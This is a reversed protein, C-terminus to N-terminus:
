TSQPGRGSTSLGKPRLCRNNTGLLPRATQAAPPSVLNCPSLVQISNWRRSWEGGGGGGRALKSLGQCLPAPPPTTGWIRWAGQPSFSSLDGRGELSSLSSKTGNPGGRSQGSTAWSHGRGAEAACPPGWGWAKGRTPGAWRVLLPPLFARWCSPYVTLPRPARFHGLPGRARPRPGFESGEADEPLAAPPPEGSPQAEKGTGGRSQWGRRPLGEAVVPAVPGQGSPDCSVRGTPWNSGCLKASHTVTGRGGGSHRRCSFLAQLVPPASHPNVPYIAECWAGM